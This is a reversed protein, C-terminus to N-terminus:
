ALKASQLEQAWLIFRSPLTPSLIVPWDTSPQLEFFASEEGRQRHLRRMTDYISTAETEFGDDGDARQRVCLQHLHLLPAAPVRTGCTYLLESVILETVAPM